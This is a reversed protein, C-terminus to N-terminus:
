VIRMALLKEKLEYGFILHEPDHTCESNDVAHMTYKEEESSAPTFLSHITACLTWAWRLMSGDGQPGMLTKNLGAETLAMLQLCFPVGEQTSNNYVCLMYVCGCNKNCVKRMSEGATCDMWLKTFLLMWNPCRKQESNMNTWWELVTAFFCAKTLHTMDVKLIPTTSIIDRDPFAMCLYCCHIFCALM